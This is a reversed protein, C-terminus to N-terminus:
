SYRGSVASVKRNEARVEKVMDVIDQENQIDLEEAAGEFAQQAKQLANASANMSVVKEDKNM